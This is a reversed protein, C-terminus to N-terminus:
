RVVIQQCAKTEDAIKQEDELAKTLLRNRADKLVKGVLGDVMEVAVDEVIEDVVTEAVAESQVDYVAVRALEESEEDCIEAVVDEYIAKSVEVIVNKKEEAERRKELEEPSIHDAKQDKAQFTSLNKILKILM